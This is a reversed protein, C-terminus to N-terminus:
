LIAEALSNTLSGSTLDVGQTYLTFGTARAPIGTSLSANGAGDATLAPLQSIPPSMDVPGFPTMTPGVGTLSYGLLVNGGATAGSVSLTAIGGGVLGSISYAPGEIEIVGHHPAVWSLEGPNANVTDNWQGPGYQSGYGYMHVVNEGNPDWGTDNSPNGPSWNTYAPTQGSTWVFTGEVALDNYGLWIGKASANWNAFTNFVWDNEAQDNITVLHGGQVLAEAQSDTWNAEELLLYTHGNAPNVVTDLVAVQAAAPAALALSLLLPKLM